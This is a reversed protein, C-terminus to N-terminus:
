YSKKAPRVRIETVEANTPLALVGVLVEAVDAPQVLLDPVYPRAEKAFIAEQRPTATRGLHISCVRIGDANKWGISKFTEWHITSKLTVAKGITCQFQTGLPM